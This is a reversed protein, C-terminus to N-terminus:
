GTGSKPATTVPPKKKAATTTPATKPATTAPATPKTAAKAATTVPAKGPKAAPKATAKSAAPATAATTPPAMPAAIGRAGLIGALVTYPWGAPLPQATPPPVVTYAQEGPRVMGYQQRAVREIEEPTQLAAVRNALADNEQNLVGLRHTTDGISARQGLWTRTPLVLFLILALAVVVVLMVWVSFLVPHRKRTRRLREVPAVGRRPGKPAGGKAAPLTGATRAM